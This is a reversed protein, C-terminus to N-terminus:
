LGRPGFSRRAPQLDFLPRGPELPNGWGGAQRDKLGSAMGGVFNGTFRGIQNRLQGSHFNGPIGSSGDPLLALGSLSAQEGDPFVFTHFRIQLRKSPEDLSAQGIAKTDKPLILVNQFYVDETILAIAPSAHDSSLVTNLLRVSITTGMALKDGGPGQSSNRKIVQSASYTRPAKAQSRQNGGNLYPNEIFPAPGATQASRQANNSNAVQANAQSAKEARGGAVLVFLIFLTLAVSSAIAVSKGKIRRTQGFPSVETLFYKDMQILFKM